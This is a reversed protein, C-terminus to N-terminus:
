KVPDPGSDWEFFGRAAITRDAISEGARRRDIWSTASFFAHVLQGLHPDIANISSLLEKGRPIRGLAMRCHTELMAFVARTSLMTATDPDDAGVDVADEFRTAAEYRARVLQDDSLPSPWALWEGAERRLEDIVSNTAYVIEGSAIMHASIPRGDRHEEAFYRRVATPPNIFIESPVGNFFKQVRRRFPQEHIVYVDLDSSANPTGRVITGTAIIGVPDVTEMVFAVADRLAEAYPSTLSPWHCQALRDDTM